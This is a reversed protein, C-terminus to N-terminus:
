GNSASRLNITMAQRVIPYRYVLFYGAADIVHDLGGTKDPEGHKDYAQKELAEVLHPCTEPNVRYRRRGEKHIQANVALVRDKVAPNSQNVCISFGAQRLLAIDSESANHSKRNKGSADPYIMLAHGKAKYRETLLRIMAPTDFVETLEAVAHPEDGRLVHVVAAGHAVNFDMGVHLTEGQKITESSANLARDFEPYVSGATLNVFEGDLYAALLQSSYTAQLNEIYGPPLNGANDMTKARFLVYGPAKNKVWREWVFRFGEPTTVVGVTNPFDGPLKQRNRAIIKNWAERAKELPLTDLEDVVSHAVEYGVIRAPQEMTRFVIRGKGPFAIQPSNGSRVKHDWGKRECLDPFRRLAIDEVLPFTPLYYAVDQDPFHTKLAMARAIGAATKGSGFGGVFAPFPERSTAFARQAQTLSM